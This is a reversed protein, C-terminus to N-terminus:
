QGQKKDNGGGGGSKNAPAAHQPAPAAAHQEVHTAQGQPQSNNAPRDVHQEEHRVESQGQSPAETHPTERVQPQLSEQSPTQTHQVEHVQPQFNGQSPTQTHQVEPHVAGQTQPQFAGPSQTQTNARHEEKNVTGQSHFPQGTSAAEAQSTAQHNVVPSGAAGGNKVTSHVTLPKAASQGRNFNPHNITNSVTAPKGQHATAANVRPAFVSLTNGQVGSKGPASSGSLRVTPVKHTAHANVEGLPPGNAAIGGFGGRGGQNRSININTINRTSNIVSFNRSRDMINHRLNRDGLHGEPVFNYWGAGIHFSADVDDGFHYDSDDGFEAEPPLPAWGAYGGGFRWSVWAPAWRTGPVWVWGTGDINAWRGYHYTAWGWPEDSVWTWGEDTYAWSGDTYPAWNPDQVNPQFVYGYDDTQIWNGDQDGLQDYFTQYSADQDPGGGQDPGPGQDQGPGPGQDAGPPPPPPADQARVLAPISLFASVTVLVGLHLIRKM